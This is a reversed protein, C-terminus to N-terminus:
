KQCLHEEVILDEEIWKFLYDINLYPFLDRQIMQAEPIKFKGNKCCLKRKITNRHVNLLKALAVITIRNSKMENILNKYM